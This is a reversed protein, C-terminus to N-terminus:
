TRFFSTFKNRFSQQITVCRSRSRSCNTNMLIILRRAPRPLRILPRQIPLHRVEKSKRLLHVILYIDQEKPSERISDCTECNKDRKCLKVLLAGRVSQGRCCWLLLSIWNCMRPQSLFSLCSQRPPLAEGFSEQTKLAEPSADADAAAASAVAAASAACGGGRRSRRSGFGGGGRGM